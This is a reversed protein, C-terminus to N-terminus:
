RLNLSNAVCEPIRPQLDVLIFINSRVEFIRLHLCWNAICSSPHAIGEDQDYETFLPSDTWGTRLQASRSVKEELRLFAVCEALVLISKITM